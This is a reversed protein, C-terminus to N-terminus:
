VLGDLWWHYQRECGAQARHPLAGSKSRASQGGDSRVVGSKWRRGPGLARHLRTSKEFSFWDPIAIWPGWGGALNGNADLGKGVRYFGANQGVPNDIMFIVIDQKGDRDVDAVAVSAGANEFSFWDPVDIWPTYGGRVVGAADLDRGIRFLGRNQAPGNDVMFVVFDQKGNGDLDAIAVGGGANEASFWNPIQQYGKPM